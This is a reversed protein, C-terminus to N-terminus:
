YAHGHSPKAKSGKEPMPCCGKGGKVARLEILWLTEAADTVVRDGEYVGDTIEAHDGFMRGVKVPARKYYDGNEVYVSLGATTALVASKPISIVSEGSEKREVADATKLALSDKTSQCLLIGEGDKHMPAADGKSEAVAPAHSRDSCATLFTATFAIALFKKM